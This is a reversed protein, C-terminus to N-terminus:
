GYVEPPSLNNEELVLADDGSMCCAGAAKSALGGGKDAAPNMNQTPHDMAVAGAPNPLM